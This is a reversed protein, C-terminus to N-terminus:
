KVFLGLSMNVRVKAGEKKRPGGVNERVTTPASPKQQMHDYLILCVCKISSGQVLSRGTASVQVALVCSM